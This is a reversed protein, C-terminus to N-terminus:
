RSDAEARLQEWPDQIQGRVRVKYWAAPSPDDSPGDGATLKLGRHKTEDDSSREFFYQYYFVEDAGPPGSSPAASPADPRILQVALARGAAKIEFHPDAVVYLSRRDSVSQWGRPTKIGYTLYPRVESVMVHLRVPEPVLAGSEDVVTGEIAWQHRNLGPAQFHCGVSLGLLITLALWRM